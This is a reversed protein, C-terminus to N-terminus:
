EDAFGHYSVIVRAGPSYYNRFDPTEGDVTISEVSGNRKFLGLRLDGLNICQVNRFGAAQLAQAAASYHLNGPNSLSDPIQLYGPRKRKRKEGSGSLFLMGYIGVLMGIMIVMYGPGDSDKTKDMTVMIIGAAFLLVTLIIWIFTLTRRHVSEKEELELEKMTLIRDTETQKIEAEDINRFIHENENHVIVKAGCYSCFATKRDSEIQLAAGCEPCKLSILRIM